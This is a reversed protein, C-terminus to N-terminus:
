FFLIRTRSLPTFLSPFQPIQKRIIHSFVYRLTHSQPLSHSVLPLCSNCNLIVKSFCTLTSQTFKTFLFSFSSHLSSFIYLFSPSQCSMVPLYLFLTLFFCSSSTLNSCSLSIWLLYQHQM